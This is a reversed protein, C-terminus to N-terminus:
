LSSKGICAMFTDPTMQSLVFELRDDLILDHVTIIHKSILKMMEFKTEFPFLPWRQSRFRDIDDRHKESWDQLSLLDIHSLISANVVSTTLLDVINRAQFQKECLRYKVLIEGFQGYIKKDPPLRFMYANARGILTVGPLRIGGDLTEESSNIVHSIFPPRRIECLIHTSPDISETSLISNLPTLGHALVPSFKNRRLSPVDM